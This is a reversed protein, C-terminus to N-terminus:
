EGAQPGCRRFTFYYCRRGAARAKAEYRTEPWDPGRERWDRAESVCWAFAPHRTLATLSARAYDGIDTALRLRAGPRMVRALQDLVPPAILRRKHHRKKPWPDPFLIFVRGISAEPLWDLVDRADGDHVRVNDLGQAEVEGLLRAVGNIFPECGIFGVDGHHAAQWALHEGGGFGIELWVDGVPRPFLGSLPEPAPADLDLRLRPLLEGLLRQRRASLRHGKRRGHLHRRAAKPERGEQPRSM